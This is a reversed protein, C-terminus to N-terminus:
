QNNYHGALPDDDSDKKDDNYLLGMVGHPRPCCGLNGM